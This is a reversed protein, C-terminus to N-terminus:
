SLSANPKPLTTRVFQTGDELTACVSMNISCYREFLMALPMEQPYRNRDNAENISRLYRQLARSALVVNYDGVPERGYVQVCLMAYYPCGSANHEVLVLRHRIGLYPEWEVNARFAGAM